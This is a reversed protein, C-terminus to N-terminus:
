LFGLSEKFLTYMSEMFLYVYKKHLQISLRILKYQSFLTSTIAVLRTKNLM